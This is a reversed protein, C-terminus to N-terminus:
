FARCFQEFLHQRAHIRIQTVTAGTGTNRSNSKAQRRTNRLVRPIERVISGMPETKRTTGTTTTRTTEITFASKFVPAKLDPPPWYPRRYQLFPLWFSQLSTALAICTTERWIGLTGTESRPLQSMASIVPYNIDRLACEVPPRSRM